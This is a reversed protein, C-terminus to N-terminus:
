QIQTDVWVSPRPNGIFWAATQIEDNLRAKRDISAAAEYLPVRQRLRWLFYGAVIGICALTFIVVTATGLPSFLDWVKLAIVLGLVSSVALMFDHLLSAARLRWEVRRLLQLIIETDSM